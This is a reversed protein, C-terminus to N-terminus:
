CAPIDSCGTAARGGRGETAETGGCTMLGFGEIREQVGMASTSVATCIESPQNAAWSRDSTCASNEFMIPPVMPSRNEKGGKLFGDM